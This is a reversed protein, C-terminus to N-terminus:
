TGVENLREKEFEQIQKLFGVNPNAISRAGQVAKLADRWSLNTVCMVYIVAVTVSRSM